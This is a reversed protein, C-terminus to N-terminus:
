QTAWVIPTPQEACSIDPNSGAVSVFEEVIGQICDNGFWIGHGRDPQVVITAQALGEAAEDAMSPPTIPDFEGSLLLAPLDSVVAPRPSTLEEVGWRACDRTALVSALASGLRGVSEPPQGSVVWDQCNVVSYTGENNGYVNELMLNSGVWAMWYLADDDGRSMGDLLAPLMFATQEQYLSLFVVFALTEADFVVTAEDLEGVNFVTLTEPTRRLRDYSKAFLADLNQDTPCTTSAQCRDNLLGLSREASLPVSISQDVSPPYVGDLIAGELGEPAQAMVELAISSGYSVGYVLWRDYGLAAMVVGVDNAMAATTTAALLPEDSLRAACDEDAQDAVMEAMAFGLSLQREAQADAEDCNLSVDAFGTGRQDIFVQPFPQPPLWLAMESSPSGPGGQLVALSRPSSPDTGPVVVVSVTTTAEPTDTTLPVEVLWCTTAVALGEPCDVGTLGPGRPDPTPSASRGSEAGSVCGAILAVALVLAAAQRTVV